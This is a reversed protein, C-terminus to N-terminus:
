HLLVLAPGIERRIQAAHCFLDLLRLPKIVGSCSLYYRLILGQQRQYEFESTAILGQWQEVLANETIGAKM